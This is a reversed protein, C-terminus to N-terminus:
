GHGKILILHVFNNNNKPVLILDLAEHISPLHMIVQAMGRAGYFQKLTISYNFNNMSKKECKCLLFTIASIMTKMMM